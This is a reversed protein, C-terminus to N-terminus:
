WCFSAWISDANSHVPSVPFIPGTPCRPLLPLSFVRVLLPARDPTTELAVKYTLRRFECETNTGTSGSLGVVVVMMPIAFMGAFLDLHCLRDVVYVRITRRDCLNTSQSTRQSSRLLLQRSSSSDPSPSEPRIQCHPLGTAPLHLRQHVCECTLSKHCCEM